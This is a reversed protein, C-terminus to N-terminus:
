VQQQALVEAEGVVDDGEPGVGRDEQNLGLASAQMETIESEENEVNGIDNM